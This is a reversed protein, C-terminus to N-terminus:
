HIRCERTSVLECDYQNSWFAIQIFLLRKLTRCSPDDPLLYDGTRADVSATEYLRSEKGYGRCFEDTSVRARFFLGINKHWLVLLITRM